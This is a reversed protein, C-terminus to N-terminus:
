EIHLNYTGRLLIEENINDLIELYDETSKGVRIKKKEFIYKTSNESKKSLVFFNNGSSLVATQPLALISDESVIIEGSIMQNVAFNTAQESFKAYCDITNNNIKSGIRSIFGKTVTETKDIGWFELKQGLHVKAYDREFVNLQLEIQTNDIIEIMETESSVYQGKVVNIENIKGSIPSVIIYKSYYKTQEVQIPDLGINLLKAKLAKYNSMEVKYSSEANLYDNESKINDEYLQKSKLFNSKLESLRSFASAYEKQLDILENGGIEFLPTNVKVFDGDNVYISKILGPVEICIKMIGNSKPVIKGSFNVKEYIAVKEVSGLLMNDAVFQEQSIEVLEDENKVESKDQPKCSVMSLLGILISLFYLNKMDSDTQLISLNWIIKTIISFPMM